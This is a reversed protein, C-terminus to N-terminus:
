NYHAVDFTHDVQGKPGHVAGQADGRQIGIPIVWNLCPLILVVNPFIGM